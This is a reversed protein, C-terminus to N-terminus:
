VGLDALISKLYAIDSQAFWERDGGRPAEVCIPGKYGIDRLIRVFHRNNIEGEALSTALRGGAGRFPASNKLHVYHLHGKVADIADELSPHGDFGVLNGYDLNVGISPRDIERVLKLTAEITDHVYVPHTEFGFKIDVGELRDAMERCGEVQWRWQEDSVIFSGHKTYDFYAISKDPNHLQGTLLNITRVGFREAVETYFAVTEDVERKRIAEDENLVLPGPFGFLVEKLGSAKVGKELEDLYEDKTEDVDMRKRRFEVGDFGWDAAKRCTEGISQGQECYNIHMIIPYAM